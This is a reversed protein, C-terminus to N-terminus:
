YIFDCADPCQNIVNRCRTNYNYLQVINRLIHRDVIIKMKKTFEKICIYLVADYSQEILYVDNNSVKIEKLKIHKINNNSRCLEDDDIERIEEFTEDLTDKKTYADHPIFLANGSCEMDLRYLNEYGDMLMYENYTHESCSNGNNFCTILGFTKFAYISDSILVYINFDLHLLLGVFYGNKGDYNYYGNQSLYINKYNYKLMLKDRHITDISVEKSAYNIHITYYDNYDQEIIIENLEPYFQGSKLLYFNPCETKNQDIKEIIAIEEKDIQIM